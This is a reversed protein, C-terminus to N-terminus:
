AKEKSIFNILEYICSSLILIIGIVLAFRSLSDLETGIYRLGNKFQFENKIEFPAMYIAASIYKTSYLIASVIIFLMGILKNYKM